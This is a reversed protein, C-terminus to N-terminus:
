ELHLFHCSALVTQFKGAKGALTLFVVLLVLELGVALSLVIGIYDNPSTVFMFVNSLECPSWEGQEVDLTFDRFNFACDSSPGSFAFQWMYGQPAPATNLIQSCDLTTDETTCSQEVELMNCGAFVYSNDNQDIENSLIQQIDNSTSDTCFRVSASGASPNYGFLFRSSPSLKHQNYHVDRFIQSCWEEPFSAHISVEGCYVSWLKASLGILSYLSIVWMVLVKLRFLPTAEKTKLPPMRKLVWLAM